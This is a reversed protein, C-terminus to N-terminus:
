RQKERQREEKRLAYHLDIAGKLGIILPAVIHSRDNKSKM